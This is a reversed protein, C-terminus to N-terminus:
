LRLLQRVHQWVAKVHALRDPPVHAQAYRVQVFADTLETIATRDAEEVHLQEALRPAYHFPTEGARRPLGADEARLLISIYYERGQRDPEVGRLRLWAPLRRGGGGSGDGALDGNAAVRSAQWALYAGFLTAWRARLMTWLRRAWTFDIGKGSFYIYAAYGLLAATFLWFVAGGAWPPFDVGGAPAADPTLTPLAPPESPLPEEPQEGSLWAMLVMLLTLFFRFLGFLVSYIGTIIAALIQALYFTGGLPLFAAIVAVAVLLATAYLPWNQLISAASPVRQLTWRARLLALQGQSIVVLGALLYVIIAAIVTTDINQRMVGFFGGQPLAFRSGAALIVLFIGGMVWRGVFRRLIAGRDTYVPRASDQYRNAFGRVVYLDDPQLALALQDETMASSMIWALIVVFGGVLAYGDILVAVPHVFFEELTPWTGTAGWTALRTALVILAFEAARYGTSRTARQGPQALWTTTISGSVSAVCGMLVLVETYVAPLDPVLRRIFALLALVLCASMVAILIPRLVSGMWPLDNLEAMSPPAPTTPEEVPPSTTETM